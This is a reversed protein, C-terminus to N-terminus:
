CTLAPVGTSVFVQIGEVPTLEDTIIPNAAVSTVQGYDVDVECRTSGVPGAKIRYYPLGEDQISVNWRTINGNVISRAYRGLGAPPVRFPRVLWFAGRATSALGVMQSASKFDRSKRPMYSPLPRSRTPHMSM